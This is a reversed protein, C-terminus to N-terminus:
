DFKFGKERFLRLCADVVERDFLIGKKQTIEDLALSIGLAPRYPRHSSMAEVVDAVCLIRAEVLIDKGSLGQPYGSGNVFEHHQHVIQAIPWPFDIKSLITYGAQAHMKILGYELDTLKTPKSLIEAPVYLKGIDHIIGAIEIGEVREEDLGMEVAIARALRTTREQHGATYPDRMEIASALSDIAAKLTTRLKILGRHLDEEAQMRQTIDRCLYVVSYPTGDPNRLIAGDVEFKIAPKGDFVLGIEQPKGRERYFNRAGSRAKELDEPAIFSFINRGVLGGAGSTGSLRVALENAYLINGELDTRVILDPIAAVLRRYLEESDRLARETRQRKTIDQALSAVGIVRGESDVLSTNYWECIIIRGDKTVNESAKQEGGANHTLDWWNRDVEALASESLIFSAHQGIAEAATYGFIQEASANWQLVRSDTDWEIVALPTKQIHLSLRQESRRLAEEAAKREISRAVQSSVFELMRQEAPGYANPNGYHQVVMAGTTKGDVILPVGLWITSPAGIIEVEGRNRLILDTEEDCLLSRGTRIVYETLGKGPKVPAPPPDIEDVFYPFRILGRAEDYLAIYFNGAPMATGIIRHVSRYLDDLGASTDAAQAIKYVASQLLEAQKRDHIDHIMGIMRRLDRDDEILFFGRDHVWRYGGNKHRFRYEVEFVERNKEGADLLRLVQDRDEPHIREAWEEFGGIDGADYGLVREYSGSWNIEGTELDYDYVAQDSAAILIDYKKRESIYPIRRQRRDPAAGAGESPLGAAEALFGPRAPPSPATTEASMRSARSFIGM